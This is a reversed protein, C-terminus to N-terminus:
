DNTTKVSFNANKLFYNYPNIIYPSCANAKQTTVTLSPCVFGVVLWLIYSVWQNLLLLNDRFESLVLNVNNWLTLCLSLMGNTKSVNFIFLVRIFRTSWILNKSTKNSSFRVHFFWIFRISFLIDFLRPIKCRAM